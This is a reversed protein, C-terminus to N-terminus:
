APVEPKVKSDWDDVSKEIAQRLGDLRRLEEDKFAHQDEVEYRASNSMECALHFANFVRGWQTRADDLRSM